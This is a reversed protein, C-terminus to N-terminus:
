AARPSRELRRDYWAPGTSAVSWGSRELEALLSSLARLADDGPAEKKRLRFPPSQAFAEASGTHAVFLQCRTYGRWLNIECRQQAPLERRQPTVPVVQVPETRVDATRQEEVPGAGPRPTDLLDDTAQSNDPEASGTVQEQHEEPPLLVRPVQERPAESRQRGRRHAGARAPASRRSVVLATLALFAGLLGTILFVTPFRSTYTVTQRSAARRGLV